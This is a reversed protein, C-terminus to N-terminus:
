GAYLLYATRAAQVFQRGASLEFPPNYIRARNFLHNTAFPSSPRDRRRRLIVLHNAATNSDSKIIKTTTGVLMLHLMSYQSWSLPWM